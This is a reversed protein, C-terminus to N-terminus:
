AQRQPGSKAQDHSRQDAPAGTTNTQKPLDQDSKGKASGQVQSETNNRTTHQAHQTNHKTQSSKVQNEHIDRNGGDARHFTHAWRWGHGPGAWGSHGVRVLRHARRFTRQWVASGWAFHANERKQNNSTATAPFFCLAALMAPLHYTSLVLMLKLAMMAM